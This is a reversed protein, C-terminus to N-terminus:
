DLEDPEKLMGLFEEFNSAVFSVDKGICAEHNWYVIQPDFNDKGQRYDFCIFDGNGTEAFAILGEPFFEPPNKFTNIINYINDEIGLFGGMDQQITIEHSVDYYEFDTNIPVGADCMSLLENYKKPLTVQLEQEADKIARLSVAGKCRFWKINSIDM